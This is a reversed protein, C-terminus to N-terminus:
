SRLVALIHDCHPKGCTCGIPDGLFVRYEEKPDLKNTVKYLKEDINEVNWQSFELETEEVPEESSLLDTEAHPTEQRLIRNIQCYMCNCGSEAPPMELVDEQPIINLLLEVKKVIEDPLNPMETNSPDHELVKGLSTISNEGLKSFLGFIDKIGSRMGSVLGSLDEKESEIKESIQAHTAFVTNITEESLDPISCITGDALSVLLNGGEVRLATVNEWRTSLYPPISLIKPTIKM